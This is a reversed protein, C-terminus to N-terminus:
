QDYGAFEYYGHVVVAVPASRPAPDVPEFVYWADSGVGGASVRWDRNRYASGGPGSRPQRPQTATTVVDPQPPRTTATSAPAAASAAGGNAAGWTVALLSLVGLTGVRRRGAARARGHTRQTRPEHWRDRGM